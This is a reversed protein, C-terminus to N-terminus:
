RQVTTQEDDNARKWPDHGIKKAIFDKIRNSYATGHIVRSVMGRSVGLEDALQSQSLGALKIEYQLRFVDQRKM